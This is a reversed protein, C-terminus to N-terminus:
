SVAGRVIECREPELDTLKPEGVYRRWIAASRLCEGFMNLRAAIGPALGMKQEKTYHTLGALLPEEVAIGAHRAFNSLFVEVGFRSWSIGPISQVFSDSLARQGNLISVFRQAWDVVKTKGEVFRGVTMGVNEDRELPHLLTRIHEETLNILDADLFVWRRARGAYILGTELAAGKGM